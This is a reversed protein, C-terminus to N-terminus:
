DCPKFRKPDFFEEYTRTYLQKDGQRRYLVMRTAVFAHDSQRTHSCDRVNDDILEYLDGAEYHKFLKTM